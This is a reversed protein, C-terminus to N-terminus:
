RRPDAMLSPCPRPVRAKVAESAENTDPEHLQPAASMWLWYGKICETVELFQHKELPKVMFSNAGLEYARDIDKPDDSTTLVVVRLRRLCPQQRIWELVEFGNLKPMRLDLLLLSPLPYEYRDAFKGEGKLYAIAEAGDTVAFVPNLVKGKQLARRLLFLHDENDEAILIVDPRM